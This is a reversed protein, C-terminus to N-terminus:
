AAMGSRGTGARKRPPKWVPKAAGPSSAYAGAGFTEGAELKQGFQRFADSNSVM